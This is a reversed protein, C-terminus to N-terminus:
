RRGPSVAGLLPGAPCAVPAPVGVTAAAGAAAPLSPLHVPRVAVRGASRTSQRATVASCRRAPLALRCPRCGPRTSPARCPAHWRWPPASPQLAWQPAGAATPACGACCSRLWHQSSPAVPRTAPPHGAAAAAPPGDLSALLHRQTSTRLEWTLCAVQMQREWSRGWSAAPLVSTPVRCAQVLGGCVQRCSAPGACATRNTSPRLRDPPQVRPRVAAALSVRARILM